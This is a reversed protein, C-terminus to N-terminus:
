EHKAEAKLMTIECRADYLENLLRRIMAEKRALELQLDHVRRADTSTM